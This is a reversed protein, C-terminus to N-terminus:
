GAAWIQEAVPLGNADVIRWDLRALSDAFGSTNNELTVMTNSDYLEFEAVTTWPSSADRRQVTYSGPALGLVALRVVNADTDLLASVSGRANQASALSVIENSVSESTIESLREGYTERFEIANSEQSALEAAQKAWHRYDAAMFMSALVAAMLAFSAARWLVAARRIRRVEISQTTSMASETEYNASEAAARAGISALPALTEAVRENEARIAALVRDRLGKPLEKLPTGVLQRTMTAQRNRIFEQEVVTAAAFARDFREADVEELLGLSELDALERLEAPTMLDNDTNSKTM